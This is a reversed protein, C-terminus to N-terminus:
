CRRADKYDGRQTSLIGMHRRIQLLSHLPMRQGEYAQFSSSDPHTRLPLNRYSPSQNRPATRRGHQAIPSSSSADEFISISDEQIAILRSYTLKNSSVVISTPCDLPDRESTYHENAIPQIAFGAM